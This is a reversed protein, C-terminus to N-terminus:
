GGAAPTERMLRLAEDKIKERELIGRKALSLVLQALKYRAAEIAGARASIQPAIQAWADEFAQGMIKLQAPDFASSALLQRAKM